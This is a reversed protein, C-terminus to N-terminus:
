FGSFFRIAYFLLKITSMIETDPTQACGLVSLQSQAVPVPDASAAWVAASVLSLKVSPMDLGSTTVQELTEHPM